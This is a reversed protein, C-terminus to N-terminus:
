ILNRVWAEGMGKVPTVLYSTGGAKQETKLVEVEIAMDYRPVKLLRKM